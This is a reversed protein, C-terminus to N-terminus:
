GSEANIGAPPEDRKAREWVRDMEALTLARGEARLAKEVERFRQEFKHITGVLIEEPNRELFRLLNVIAFLLDGLERATEEREGARYARRVETMEEEVKAFVDDPDDWDFGLASAREQVRRARLLAPLQVPIGDLVSERENKGERSKVAEWVRVADESGNAHEEGFVHPHRRHIKDHAGQIWDRVTFLGEEEAIVALFVLVYLVDGLEERFERADGRSHAELCEYVEELFNPKLTEITQRADWPCGGPARLRRELELLKRFAEVPM